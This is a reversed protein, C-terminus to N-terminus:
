EPRHSYATGPVISYHVSGPQKWFLELMATGKRQFYKVEVPFMGGQVVRFRGPESLRDGHVAPDSVILNGDIYLQFGDNSKAQFTYEGPRDLQLYGRMLVGVKQNSGSDFVEGKGFQHDLKMIPPGPRGYKVISEESKPMEDTHSYKDLFYVATLGLQLNEGALNVPLGDRKGQMLSEAQKQSQVCGFLMLHLVFAASLLIGPISLSVSRKNM